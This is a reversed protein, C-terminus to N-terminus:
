NTKRGLINCWREFVWKPIVSRNGRRIVVSQAQEDVGSEDLCQRVRKSALCEDMWESSTTLTSTASLNMCTEKWNERTQITSNAIAFGPFMKIDCTGPDGHAERETDYIVKAFHQAEQEIAFATSPSLSVILRNVVIRIVWSVGSLGRGLIGAEVDEPTVKLQADVKESRSATLKHSLINISGSTLATMHFAGPTSSVM